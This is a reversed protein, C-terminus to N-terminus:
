PLRVGRQVAADFAVVMGRYAARAMLEKSCYRRRAAVVAGDAKAVCRKRRMDEHLVRQFLLLEACDVGFVNGAMDYLVSPRGLACRVAAVYEGFSSFESLVAVPSAVLVFMDVLSGTANTIPYTRYTKITWVGPYTANWAAASYYDSKSRWTAPIAAQSDADLAGSAYYGPTAAGYLRRVGALIKTLISLGSAAAKGHLSRDSEIRLHLGVWAYRKAGGGGGAAAAAHKEGFAHMKETLPDTWQRLRRSPLFIRELFFRVQHRETLSNMRTMWIDGTFVRAYRRADCFRRFRGVEAPLKPLHPTVADEPSLVSGPVFRLRVGYHRLVGAAMADGDLLDGFTDHQFRAPFETVSRGAMVTYLVCAVLSEIVNTFGMYLGQDCRVPAADTAAADAAAAPIFLNASNSAADADEVTYTLLGGLIGGAPPHRLPYFPLHATGDYCAKLGKLGKSARPHAVSVADVAAVACAARRVRLIVHNSVAADLRVTVASPWSCGAAAAGQSLDFTIDVHPRIKSPLPIARCTTTNIVAIQPVAVRAVTAEGQPRRTGCTCWTRACGTVCDFAAGTTAVTPATPAAPVAPALPPVSATAPEDAADRHDQPPPSTAAVITPPPPSTSPMVLLLGLVACSLLVTARVCARQVM